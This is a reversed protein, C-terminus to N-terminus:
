VAMGLLIYAVLVVVWGCLVTIATKETSLALVERAALFGVILTLALAVVGVWGLCPFVTLLGLAAPANAYGLARAMGWFSAQGSFLTTGVFRTAATWLLWNLLIGFLFRSVFVGVHFLGPANIAEGLAALFSAIIVVAIAERNAGEDREIETFVGVDFRAIRVLRQIVQNWDLM